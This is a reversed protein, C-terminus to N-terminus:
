RGPDLRRALRRLPEAETPLDMAEYCTALGDIAEFYPRNVDRGSPLRGNFDPPFAKHALEFAYGFHGRALKPDNFEELAIRGLAVHVWINDGCGQLAYRLADRASEPDGHQWLEIGEAYDLEMEAVCRPHILEFDNGGVRRLHLGGARRKPPQGSSGQGQKGAGPKEPM